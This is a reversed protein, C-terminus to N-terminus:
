AKKNDVNAMFPEGPNKEPLQEAYAPTMEFPDLLIGVTLPLTLFAYLLTLAAPHNSFSVRRPNALLPTTYKTRPSSAKMAAVPLPPSVALLCLTMSRIARAGNPSNMSIM